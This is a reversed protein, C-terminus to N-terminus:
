SVAHTTSELSTAGKRPCPPAAQWDATGRRIVHPADADRAESEPRVAWGAVIYDPLQRRASALPSDFSLRGASRPMVEIVERNFAVEWEDHFVLLSGTPGTALLGAGALLGGWLHLQWLRKRM